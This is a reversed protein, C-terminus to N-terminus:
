MGVCWTSLSCLYSCSELNILDSTRTCCGLLLFGDAVCNHAESTVISVCAQVTTKAVVSLIEGPDCGKKLPVIKGELTM